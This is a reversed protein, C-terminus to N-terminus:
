NKCGTLKCAHLEIRFVISVTTINVDINDHVMLLKALEVYNYWAAIHLAAKIVTHICFAIVYERKM